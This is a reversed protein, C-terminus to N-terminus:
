RRPSPEDHCTNTLSLCGRKRIVIYRQPQLRGFISRTSRPELILESRPHAFSNISNCTYLYTQKAPIILFLDFILTCGVSLRQDRSPFQMSTCTRVKVKTSRKLVLFCQGVVGKHAHEWFVLFMTIREFLGERRALKRSLAFTADTENVRRGGKTHSVLASIRTCTPRNLYTPRVCFGLSM